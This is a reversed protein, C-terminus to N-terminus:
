LKTFNLLAIRHVGAIAAPTTLEAHVTRSRTSIISAHVVSDLVNPLRYFRHVFAAGIILERHSNFLHESSLRRPFADDFGERECAM